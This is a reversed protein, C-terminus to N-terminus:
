SKARRGRLDVPTYTSSKGHDRDPRTLKRYESISDGCSGSFSLQDGNVSEFDEPRASGPSLQNRSLEIVENDVGRGKEPPAVKRIIEKSM